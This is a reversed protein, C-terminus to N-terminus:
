QRGPKWLNEDVSWHFEVTNTVAQSDIGNYLWNNDSMTKQFVSCQSQLWKHVANPEWQAVYEIVACNAVSEETEGIFKASAPVVSLVTLALSEYLNFSKGNADRSREYKSWAEPVLITYEADVSLSGGVSANTISVGYETSGRAFADLARAVKESGNYSWQKKHQAVYFSPAVSSTLYAKTLAEAQEKTLTPFPHYKILSAVPECQRVVFSPGTREVVCNLLVRSLRRARYIPSNTPSGYDCQLFVTFLGSQPSSSGMIDVPAYPRVETVSFSVGCKPWFAWSEFSPFDPIADTKASLEKRYREQIELTVKQWESQPLGQLAESVARLYSPNSRFFLSLDGRALSQAYDCLFEGVAGSSAVAPPPNPRQPPNRPSAQPSESRSCSCCVSLLTSVCLLMLLAYACRVKKANM